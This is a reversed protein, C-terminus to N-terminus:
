CEGAIRARNYLPELLGVAVAAQEGDDLDTVTLELHLQKPVEGTPWQPVRHDAVRQVTILVAAGRLAVFDISRTLRYLRSAFV